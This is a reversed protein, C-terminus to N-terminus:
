RSELLKKELEKAKEISAADNASIGYKEAPPISIELGIELNDPDKIKERNEEFIYVWFKKNGYEQRAITTLRDGRKIRYKKSEPLPKPTEQNKIISDPKIEPSQLDIEPLECITKSFLNAGIPTYFVLACALLVAASISIFFWILPFQGTKASTEPEVYETEDAETEDTKDPEDTKIPESETKVEVPEFFEFPANITDALDKDAAFSIGNESFSFVGLNKIEVSKDCVLGKKALEFFNRLFYEAEETTVQWKEALRSAYDSLKFKDSM